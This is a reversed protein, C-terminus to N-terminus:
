NGERKRMIEQYVKLDDHWKKIDELMEGSVNLMGLNDTNHDPILAWLIQFARDNFATSTYVKKM